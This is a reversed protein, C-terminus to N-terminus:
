GDQRMIVFINVSDSKVGLQGHFRRQPTILNYEVVVTASARRGERKTKLNKRPFKSVSETCKSICWPNRDGGSSSTGVSPLKASQLVDVEVTM